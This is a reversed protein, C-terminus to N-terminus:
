EKDGLIQMLKKHEKVFIEKYKEHIRKGTQFIAKDKQNNLDLLQNVPGGSCDNFFVEIKDNDLPWERYRGTSIKRLYSSVPPKYNKM